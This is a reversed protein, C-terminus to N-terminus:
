WAPMSARRAVRSVACRQPAEHRNQDRTRDRDIVDHDKRVTEVTVNQFVLELLGYAIGVSLLNMIIAKVPVVVSRFAVTLLLFSLGM